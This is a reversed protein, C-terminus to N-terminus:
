DHPGIGFGDTRWWCGPGGGTPFSRVLFRRGSGIATLKAGLDAEGCAQLAAAEDATVPLLLWTQDDEGDQWDIRETFVVAFRQGCDCQTLTIGFHSEEVLRQLRQQRAAAWAADADAGACRQCGFAPQAPPPEPAEGEGSGTTLPPLRAPLAAGAPLEIELMWDFDREWSDFLGGHGCAPCHMYTFELRSRSEDAGADTSGCQPCRVVRLRERAPPEQKTFYLLDYDHLQTAPELEVRYLQGCAPCAFVEDGVPELGLTRDVDGLFNDRM